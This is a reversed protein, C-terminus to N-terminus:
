GPGFILSKLKEIAGINVLDNYVVLVMLTMLFYFGIQTMREQVSLSVQKRRVTEVLLFLLHGGDLAPIPLLNIVALSVSLIATFQLLSVLGMKAASGAMSIIGIPGSITKLSLQGTVLRWLAEYTLATLRWEFQAARILADGLQYREVIFDDAPKIGIRPVQRAQGFIDRGEELEPVVRVVHTQDDRLVSFELVNTEAELIGITMDQWNSIATGNIHTVKDGVLLGSREAPYGEVFGGIVPSLVPRGMVMACTFLAYAFLFNMAVGAILIFFRSGRSAVLFDRPDSRGRESIEEQTEGFPKVFGGLPILSIAYRTEKGQWSFVEPGFGISFKEVGVQTLRCALFHGLEHVFILVGLTLVTSIIQILSENM